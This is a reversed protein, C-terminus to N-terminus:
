QYLNCAFFRAFQLADTVAPIKQIECRFCFFDNKRVKKTSMTHIHYLICVIHFAVGVREREQFLLKQGLQRGEPRRELAGQGQDFLGADAFVTGGAGAAVLVGGPDEGEGLVSSATAHVDGFLQDREQALAELVSAAQLLQEGGEPRIQEAGV